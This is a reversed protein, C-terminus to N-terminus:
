KIPQAKALLGTKQDSGKSSGFYYALVQEAKASLYGVLTGALASDIKAWGLVCSGVLALFGGVIMFALTKNMNDKVLAERTRADARDDYVMRELDIDLEKMKVAFEQDAKKIAALVEPTAGQLALAIEKETGDKKGLIAQSIAAVGAGALPGGFATAITPAVASVISKWDFDM